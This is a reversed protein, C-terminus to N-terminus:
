SHYPADILRQSVWWINGFPDIVGGQRDGYPMDMVAMELIAGADIARTMSRDADEVYIYWATPMAPYPDRAQGIMMTVTGVRIQLNVVTGDEITTRGVERGGFAQELFAAFDLPEDAFVYPTITQFGEPIRLM